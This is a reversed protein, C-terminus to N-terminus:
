AEELRVAVLFYAGPGTVIPGYDQEEFDDVLYALVPGGVGDPAEWYVAANLEWLARLDDLTGDEVTPAVLPVILTAVWVRRVRVGVTLTPQGTKATGETFSPLGRTGMGEPEVLYRCATVDNAVLSLYAKATV